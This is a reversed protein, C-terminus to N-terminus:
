EEVTYQGFYARKLYMYDMVDIQLNNNLDAKNCYMQAEPYQGFYARKVTLYDMTDFVNDFNVDCAVSENNNYDDLALGAHMSKIVFDLGEFLTAAEKITYFKTTTIYYRYRDPNNEYFPRMEPTLCDEYFYRINLIEIGYFDAVEGEVYQSIDLEGNAFVCIENPIIRNEIDLYRVPVEWGDKLYYEIDYGYEKAIEEDPILSLTTANATICCATLM